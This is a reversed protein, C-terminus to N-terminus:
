VVWSVYYAQPTGGAIVVDTGVAAGAIQEDFVYGAPVTITNGGGITVTSAAATGAVLSVRRLRADDTLNVTGTATGAAYAYTGEYGFTPNM